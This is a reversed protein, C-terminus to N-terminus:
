LTYDVIACPTDRLLPTRYATCAHGVITGSIVHSEDQLQVRSCVYLLGCVGSAASKWGRCRLKQWQCRVAIVRNAQRTRTRTLAAIASKVLTQWFHRSASARVLYNLNVFKELALFEEGLRKAEQWM